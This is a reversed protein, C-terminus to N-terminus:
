GPKSSRRPRCPIGLDHRDRRQRQGIRGPLEAPTWEPLGMSAPAEARTLAASSTVPVSEALEGPISALPTPSPPM